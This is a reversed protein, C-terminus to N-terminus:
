RIKAQRAKLEDIQREVSQIVDPNEDWLELFDWDENPPHIMNTLLEIGKELLTDLDDHKNAPWVYVRGLTQLVYCAARILEYDDYHQFAKHIEDVKLDSFFEAYWDAARDNDWPEVDWAGM